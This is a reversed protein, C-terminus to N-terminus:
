TCRLPLRRAQVSAGVWPWTSPWGYAARGLTVTPTMPPRIDRGCLSLSLSLSLSLTHTHTHSLPLPLTYHSFSHLSHSLSIYVCVCACLLCFLIHVGVAATLAMSHRLWTHTDNVKAAPAVSEPATPMLYHHHHAPRTAEWVADAKLELPGVQGDGHRCFCLCVSLSLSFPILM